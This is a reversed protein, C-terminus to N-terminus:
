NEPFSLWPLGCMVPGEKHEREDTPPGRRGAKEDSGSGNNKPFEIQNRISQFM